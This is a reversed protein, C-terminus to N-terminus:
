LGFDLRCLIHQHFYHRHVWYRLFLANFLREFSKFKSSEELYPVTCQLSFYWVFDLNIHYKRARYSKKNKGIVPRWKPKTNRNQPRGSPEVTKTCWRRYCIGFNCPADTSETKWRWETKRRCPNTLPRQLKSLGTPLPIRPFYFILSFINWWELFIEM